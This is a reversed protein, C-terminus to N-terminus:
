ECELSTVPCPEVGSGIRGKEAGVLVQRRVSFFGASVNHAFLVSSSFSLGAFQELGLVIVDDRDSRVVLLRSHEPLIHLLLGRSRLTLTFCAKSCHM